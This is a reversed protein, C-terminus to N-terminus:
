TIMYTSNRASELDLSGVHPIGMDVASVVDVFADRACQGLRAMEPAHGSFCDHIALMDGAFSLVTETVINGDLAHIFNPTSASMNKKAFTGAKYTRYRLKTEVKSKRNGVYM